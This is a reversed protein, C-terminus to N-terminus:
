LVEAQVRAAHDGEDVLQLRLSQDLPARVGVVAPDVRQEQRRRTLLRQAVDGTDLALVGLRQARREVRALARLERPQERADGLLLAQARPHVRAERADAASALTSRVRARRAPAAAGGGPRTGWRSVGAHLP